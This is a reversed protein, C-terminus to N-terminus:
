RLSLSGRFFYGNNTTQDIHFETLTWGGRPPNWRSGRAYAFTWLGVGSVIQVIVWSGNPVSQHIMGRDSDGSVYALQFTGNGWGLQGLEKCRHTDYPNGYKGSPNQNVQVATYPYKTYDNTDNATQWPPRRIYGIVFEIGSITYIIPYYRKCWTYRYAGIFKISGISSSYSVFQSISTLGM